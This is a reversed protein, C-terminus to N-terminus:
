NPFIVWGWRLFHFSSFNVEFTILLLSEILLLTKHSMVHRVFIHNIFIFLLFQVIFVLEVVGLYYYTDYMFFTSTLMLLSSMVFLWCYAAIKKM